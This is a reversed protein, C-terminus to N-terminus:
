CRADKTHLLRALRLASSYTINPMHGRHQITLKTSEIATSGKGKAQLMSVMMQCIPSSHVRLLPLSKHIIAVHSITGRDPHTCFGSTQWDARGILQANAKTLRDAAHCGFKGTRPSSRRQLSRTATANVRLALTSFRPM